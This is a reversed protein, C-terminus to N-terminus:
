NREEGTSHDYSAFYGGTRYSAATSYAITDLMQYELCDSHEYHYGYRSENPDYFTSLRGYRDLADPFNRALEYMGDYIEQATVITLATMSILWTGTVSLILLGTVAHLSKFSKKKSRWFGAAPLLLALGAKVGAWVLDGKVMERVSYVDSYEVLLERGITLYAYIDKAAWILLLAAAIWYGESIRKM